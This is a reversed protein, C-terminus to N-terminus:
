PIRPGSSRLHSIRTLLDFVLPAGISIALATLLLGLAKLVWFGTDQLPQVASFDGAECGSLCSWGLVPGQTDAALLRHGMLLTDANLLVAIFLAFLLIVLQTRRKYWGSVRAMSDNFWHEVILQAEEYDQALELLVSLQQLLPKPFLDSSRDRAANLLQRVNQVPVREIVGPDRGNVLLDFLALTFTHGPMYAPLRSGRKLSAVLAHNLLADTLAGLRSEGLLAAIGRRLTRGRAASLQAWWEVLAMVLLSLLLYFLVLGLLLEAIATVMM